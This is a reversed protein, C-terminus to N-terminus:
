GLSVGTAASSSPSQPQQLRNPKLRRRRMYELIQSPLEQLVDKALAVKSWRVGDSGDAAVRLYKRLEVFQVIDRCAKQGGEELLWVDQDLLEMETFNGSGIGVVIISVPLYSAPQRRSPEIGAPERAQHGPRLANARRLRVEELCHRYAELVGAAGQCFPNASDGNLPWEHSVRYDPPAGVASASRQCCST